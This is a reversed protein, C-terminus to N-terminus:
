KKVDNKRGREELNEDNVLMKIILAKENYTKMM